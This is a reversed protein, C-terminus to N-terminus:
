VYSSVRGSGPHDSHSSTAVRLGCSSAAVTTAVLNAYFTNIVTPRVISSIFPM